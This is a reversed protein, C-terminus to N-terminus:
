DIFRMVLLVSGFMNLPVAKNHFSGTFLESVCKKNLGVGLCVSTMNFHRFIYCSGHDSPSVIHGM